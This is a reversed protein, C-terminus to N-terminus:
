QQEGENTTENTTETENATERVDDVTVSDDTTDLDHLEDATYQVGFLVEPCAERAVATIARWTLMTLPQKKYNDKNLLGMQQAWAKDRTVSIVHEPDDARQIHATVSLNQADKETWLRHGAHRVLGTIFSASATPTGNIVTINQLSQVANLGLPAGFQMAVLINQPKGRYAQPIIESTAFVKAQYMMQDFSVGGHNENRAAVQKSIQGM